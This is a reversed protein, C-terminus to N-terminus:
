GLFSGGGGGCALGTGRRGRLGGGLPHHGPPGDLGLDPVGQPEGYGRRTGRRPPTPHDVGRYFRM